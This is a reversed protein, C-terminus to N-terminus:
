RTDVREPEHVCANFLQEFRSAIPIGSANFTPPKYGSCKHLYPPTKGPDHSRSSLTVNHYAPAPFPKDRICILRYLRYQVTNVYSEFLNFLYASM